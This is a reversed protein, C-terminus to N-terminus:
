QFSESMYDALNDIEEDSLDTANSAMLATNPGVQEGARYQKLRSSLYDADRGALSPFSAMGKGSRGHCHACANAYLTEADSTEAAQTNFTGSMLAVGIVIPM